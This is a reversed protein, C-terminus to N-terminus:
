GDGPRAQAQERPGYSPAWARGDGQGRMRRRQGETCGRATDGRRAKDGQGQERLDAGRGLRM